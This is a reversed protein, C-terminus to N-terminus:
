PFQLTYKPTNFLLVFFNTVPDVPMVRVCGVFRLQCNNKIFM